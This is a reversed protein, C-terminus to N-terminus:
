HWVTPLATESGGDLRGQQWEYAVGDRNLHSDYGPDTAYLPTHSRRHALREGLAEHAAGIRSM